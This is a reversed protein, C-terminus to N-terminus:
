DQPSELPNDLAVLKKVKFKRRPQVNSALNKLARKRVPMAVNLQTEWLSDLQENIAILLQGATIPEDARLVIVTPESGGQNMRALITQDNDPLVIKIVGQYTGPAPFSIHLPKFSNIKILTIADDSYM